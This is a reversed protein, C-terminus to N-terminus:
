FRGNNIERLMKKGIGYCFVVAAGTLAVLFVSV